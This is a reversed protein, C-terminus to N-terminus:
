CGMMNQHIKTMDGINLSQMMKAMPEYGNKQMIKIM